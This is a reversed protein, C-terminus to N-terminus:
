HEGHCSENSETLNNRAFSNSNNLNAAVSWVELDSESQQMTDVIHVSPERNVAIGDAWMREPKIETLETSYNASEQDMGGESFNGDNSGINANNNLENDVVIESKDDLEAADM